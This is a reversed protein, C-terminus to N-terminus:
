LVCTDLPLAVYPLPATSPPCCSSSQHSCDEIEYKLMKHTKADNILPPVFVHRPLRGLFTFTM